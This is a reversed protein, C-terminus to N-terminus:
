CEYCTGTTCTCLCDDKSCVSVPMFVMVYVGLCCVLMVGVDPQTRWSPSLLLHYLGLPCLVSAVGLSENHCFALASAMNGHMREARNREESNVRWRAQGRGQVCTCICVHGHVFASMDLHLCTSTCNSVHCSMLSVRCLHLSHRLCNLHERTASLQPACWSKCVHPVPWDFVNLSALCNLHCCALLVHVLPRQYCALRLHM